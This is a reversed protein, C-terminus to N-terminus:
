IVEKFYEVECAYFEDVFDNKMFLFDYYFHTKLSKYFLLQSITYIDETSYVGILYGYNDYIFVKGYGAINFFNLTEICDAAFDSNSFSDVEFYVFPQMSIIFDRSGRIVEFDHGDTDIKLLNFKNADEFEVVISDVTRKEFKNEDNIHGSNHFQM